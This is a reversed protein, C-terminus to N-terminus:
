PNDAGLLGSNSENSPHYRVYYATGSSGSNWVFTDRRDGSLINVTSVWPIVPSSSQTTHLRTICLEALDRGSAFQNGTHLCTCLRVYWVYWSASYRVTCSQLAAPTCTVSSQIACVSHHQVCRWIRPICYYKWNEMYVDCIFPDHVTSWVRIIQVFQCSHVCGVHWRKWVYCRHCYLLCNLLGSYTQIM